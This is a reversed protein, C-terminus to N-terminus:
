GERRQALHARAVALQGLSLGGDNPPVQRHLLVELGEAHLAEVSWETLLRNQFCGGSLAVRRVGSQRAIAAVTQAIAAALGRHIRAAIREPAVGARRDELLAHVLPAWDLVFQDGEAQLAVAYAGQETVDAAQELLTAAQGEYGRGLRLGLLAACGDFLRGASTTVPALASPGALVRGLLAVAPAPALEPGWEEVLAAGGAEHLLALAPRWPERVAAEGGALAFPRLHGVRRFGAADGLLFEGGWVTGDPGYGSGDWIVGIAPGDVGADALCSALHAHHHQVALTPTAPAIQGDGSTAVALAWQTSAYDPHLDHVILAPQVDYLRLLDAIVRTFCSRAEPSELDGIHQSLFANAGLALAITSKQHGGTALLPPRADLDAVPRLRVPLPAYGRARRLPQTAGAMIQVVSDDVHRAIPRNHLLFLDALPNAEDGLRVLAEDNDICLPEESRNGSTAVISKGVAELLLYHLPTAALMVGLRQNGPAVGADITSGERARALVIPAAPGALLAEEDPSLQVLRRADALTRVMLAFPKEDRGKRRRLTAVAEGYTADAMLHFGGLGKAALIRGERLAAAAALLADDGQEATAWGQSGRRMLTLQPGCVACATPQAHFRRDAPNGYEEACAPCLSFGAMTTAARDYPLAHVISFRPGCNTCNTFSYRHRSDGLRHIDDLCDPCTAVDPLLLATPVGAGSSVIAFRREGLPPRPETSFGTILALPPAESQLAAVFSEVVDSDGEVEISVGGSHNRVFGGLGAATALRYVFPRFGVGQVAGQVEIARRTTARRAPSASQERRAPPKTLM